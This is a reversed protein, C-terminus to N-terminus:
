LKQAAGTALRGISGAGLVVITTKKQDLYKEFIEGIKETSDITQAFHPHLRNIDDCLRSSDIGAIIEESASYIPCLYLDEAANFCHLFDNWCDRTRTYRHPEFVVVIRSDSRTKKVADLTAM